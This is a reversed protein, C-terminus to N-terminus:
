QDYRTHSEHRHIRQREETDFVDRCIGCKYKFQGNHFERLHAIHEEWSKFEANCIACTNDHFPGFNKQISNNENLLGNWKIRLDRVLHIKFLYSTKCIKGCAVCTNASGHDLSLIELKWQNKPWPMLIMKKNFKDNFAHILLFRQYGSARSRNLKPRGRSVRPRGTNDLEHNPDSIDDHDLDVDEPKVRDLFIKFSIIARFFTSVSSSSLIVEKYRSV